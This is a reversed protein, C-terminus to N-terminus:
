GRHANIIIAAPLTASPHTHPSDWTSEFWVASGDLVPGARDGPQLRAVGFLSRMVARRRNQFEPRTLPSLRVSAARFRGSPRRTTWAFSFGILRKIASTPMALKIM